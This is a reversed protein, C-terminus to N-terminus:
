RYVVQHNYESKGAPTYKLTVRVKSTGAPAVCSFTISTKGASLAGSQSPCVPFGNGDDLSASWAISQISGDAPTLSAFFTLDSFITSTSAPRLLQLNLFYDPASKYPYDFYDVGQVSLDYNGSHNSQCNQFLLQTSLLCLILFIRKGM